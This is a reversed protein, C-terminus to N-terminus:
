QRCTTDSAGRDNDSSCETLSCPREQFATISITREPDEQLPRSRLQTNKFKGVETPGPLELPLVCTVRKAFM